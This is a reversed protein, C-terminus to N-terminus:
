CARRPATRIPRERDHRASGSHPGSQQDVADLHQSTRQKTTSAELEEYAADDRIIKLYCTLNLTTHGVFVNRRRLIRRAEETMLQSQTDAEAQAEAALLEPRTVSLNATQM